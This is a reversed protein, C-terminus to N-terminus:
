LVFPFFDRKIEKVVEKTGLVIRNEEPVFEVSLSKSNKTLTYEKWMGGQKEKEKLKDLRKEEAVCM